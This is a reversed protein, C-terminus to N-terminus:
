AALPNVSLSFAMRLLDSLGGGVFRQARAM